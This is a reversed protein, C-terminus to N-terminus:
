FLSSTDLHGLRHPSRPTTNPTSIRASLLSRVSSSSLSACAVGASPLACARIIVPCWGLGGARPRWCSRSLSSVTMTAVPGCYTSRRGRVAGCGARHRSHRAVRAGREGGTSGAGERFIRAFKQMPSEGIRSDRESDMNGASAVDAEFGCIIGRGEGRPPGFNNKSAFIRVPGM